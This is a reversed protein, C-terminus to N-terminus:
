SKTLSVYYNMLTIRRQKQSALSRWCNHLTFYCVTQFGWQCIPRENYTIPFQPSTLNPTNFVFVYLCPTKYLESTFCYSSVIVFSCLWVPPFLPYKYSKFNWFFIQFIWNILYPRAEFTKFSLGEWSFYTCFIWNWFSFRISCSM